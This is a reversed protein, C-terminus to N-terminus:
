DRRFLTIMNSIMLGLEDFGFGTSIRYGTQFVHKNLKTPCALVFQNTWGQMSWHQSLDTEGYLM